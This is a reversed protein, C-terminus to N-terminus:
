PMKALRNSAEEAPAWFFGERNWCRANPFTIAAEYAEKAESSEGLKELSWAKIFYATGVDNLAWNAFIAEKEEESVEGNPPAETLTSQQKIAESEWRDICEQAYNIAELLQNKEFNDWAAAVCEQSRSIVHIATPTPPLAIPTPPLCSTFLLGLSFSFLVTFFISKM